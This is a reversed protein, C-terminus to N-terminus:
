AKPNTEAAKVYQKKYYTDIAVAQKMIQSIKGTFGEIALLKAIYEPTGDAVVWPAEYGGTAKFTVSIRGDAMQEVSVTEEQHELETPSEAEPPKGGPNQFPDWEGKSM